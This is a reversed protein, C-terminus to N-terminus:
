AHAQPVRDQHARDARGLKGPPRVAAHPGAERRIHPTAAAIAAQMAIREEPESLRRRKGGGQVLSAVTREVVSSVVKALQDEDLARLEPEAHEVDVRRKRSTPPLEAVVSMKSVSSLRKKM